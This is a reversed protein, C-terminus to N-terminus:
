LQKQIIELNTAFHEKYQKMLLNPLKQIMILTNMMQFYLKIFNNIIRKVVKKMM